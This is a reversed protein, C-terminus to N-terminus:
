LSVASQGITPTGTTNQPDAKDRIPLAVIQAGATGLHSADPARRGTAALRGTRMVHRMHRSANRHRAFRMATQVNM